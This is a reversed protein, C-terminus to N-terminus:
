RPLFTLTYEQHASKNAIRFLVNIDIKKGENFENLLIQTDGGMHVNNFFNQVRNLPLNIIKSQDYCLGFRNIVQPAYWSWKGELPNPAEYPVREFFNRIEEKRYLTMDVTNPYGWDCEAHCFQWAYVGDAVAQLPPHAQERQMAYCYTLNRGLRYYFGYAQTYELLQIDRAVDIFDKVVIDDVAFIIYAHPSSFAAQLTLPQFDEYPKDGQQMFIVQEFDKKVEDYALTYSEQTTRYIVRIDGLGTMYKQVSELLAYLQLPRDFSYIVLDAKKELDNDACYTNFFSCKAILAMICLFKRLM